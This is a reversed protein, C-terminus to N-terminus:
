TCRGLGGLIGSLRLLRLFGLSIFLTLLGFSGCL